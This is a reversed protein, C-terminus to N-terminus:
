RKGYNQIGESLFQCTKITDPLSETTIKIDNGQVKYMEQVASTKV